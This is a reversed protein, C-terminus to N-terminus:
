RARFAGRGGVSIGGTGGRPLREWWSLLVGMALCFVHSWNEHTAEEAGFSWRQRVWCIGAVLGGAVPESGWAVLVLLVLFFTLAATHMATPLFM